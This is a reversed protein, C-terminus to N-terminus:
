NGSCSSSACAILVLLVLDVLKVPPTWIQGHSRMLHLKTGGEVASRSIFAEV